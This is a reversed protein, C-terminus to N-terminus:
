KHIEIQYKKSYNKKYHENLFNYCDKGLVFQIEETMAEFVPQTFNKTCHIGCYDLNKSHEDDYTLINDVITLPYLICHTPKIAWKHKQNKMAFVQLTCFNNKDKFVCQTTGASNVYLESGIAYGSAFDKDEVLMKEFWKDSDKIQFEDMVDKIENEHNMIVDKFDRDMYIGWDCCQGACIEINCGPVFGQTFIVSDIKLGNYEM